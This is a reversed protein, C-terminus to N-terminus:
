RKIQEYWPLTKYDKKFATYVELVDYLESSNVGREHLFNDWDEKFEFAKEINKDPIIIFYYNPYYAQDMCHGYIIRNKINIHCVNVQSEYLYKKSKKIEFKIEKQFDLHWVSKNPIPTFLRYPKILPLVNLDGTHSIKYFQEVDSNCSLM